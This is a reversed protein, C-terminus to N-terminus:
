ILLSSRGAGEMVCRATAIFFAISSITLILSFFYTLLISFQYFLRNTVIIQLRRRLESISIHRLPLVLYLPLYVLGNLNILISPSIYLTYSGLLGVSKLVITTFSYRYGLSSSGVLSSVLSSVLYSVLSSAAVIGGQLDFRIYYGNIFNQCFM